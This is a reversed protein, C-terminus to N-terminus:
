RVKGKGKSRLEFKAVVVKTTPATSRQGFGHPDHCDESTTTQDVLSGSREIESMRVAASVTPCKVSRSMLLFSMPWSTGDTPAFAERIM